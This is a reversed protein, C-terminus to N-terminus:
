YLMYCNFNIKRSPVQGAELFSTMPEWLVSCRRLNSTDMMLEYANWTGTKLFANQKEQENYNAFLVSKRRIYYVLVKIKFSVGINLNTESTCFFLCCFYFSFFLVM